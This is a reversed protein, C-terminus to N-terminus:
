WLPVNPDPWCRSLLAHALVPPIELPVQLYLVARTLALLNHPDVNEGLGEIFM